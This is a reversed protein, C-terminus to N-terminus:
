EDECGCHCGPSALSRRFVEAKDDYGHVRCFAEMRRAHDLAAKHCADCHPVGFCDHTDAAPSM